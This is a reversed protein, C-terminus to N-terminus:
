ATEPVARLQDWVLLLTALDADSRRDVVFGASELRCVEREEAEELEALRAQLGAIKKPRDALPVGAGPLLPKLRARLAKEFDPGHLWLLFAADIKPVDPVVGPRAFALVSSQAQDVHERMRASFRELTEDLSLQAEPVSELEALLKDRESRIKELAGRRRDGAVIIEM